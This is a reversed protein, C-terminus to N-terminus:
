CLDVCKTIYWIRYTKYQQCTNKNKNQPQLKLRLIYNKKNEQLNYQPGLVYNKSGNPTTSLFAALGNAVHLLKLDIEMRLLKKNMRWTNIFIGQPKLNSGRTQGNKCWNERLNRKKYNITQLM